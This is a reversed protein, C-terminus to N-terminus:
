FRGPRHPGDERWADYDTDIEGDAPPEDGIQQSFSRGWLWYHCFGVLTIVGVIALFAIAFPGMLGLFFVFGGAALLFLLLFTLFTSRASSHPNSDPSM